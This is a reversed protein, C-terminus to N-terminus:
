LVTIYRLINKRMREAGQLAFDIANGDGVLDEKWASVIAEEVCALAGHGLKDFAYSCSKANAGSYDYGDILLFMNPYKSRLSRLADASTAPGVCAVRSYGSREIYSEGVRKAMDAAAIYVLRSGTLLEQLEPASKNGTRVTLFIDKDNKKIQNVFPKVGDSGIYLSLVLGDFRWRQEEFLADAVLQADAASFIEPVDLLVYYGQESAYSLLQELGTMASAGRVAFSAFGFRVAPIVGKLSDLLAKAYLCYADTLDVTRELFQPPIQTKDLAFRVASPNKLKRIKNQLKDISM